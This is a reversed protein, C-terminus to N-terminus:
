ASVGAPRRRQLKWVCFETQVVGAKAGSPVDYQPESSKRANASSRSPRSRQLLGAPPYKTAEGAMPGSPM